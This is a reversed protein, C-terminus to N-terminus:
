SWPLRQRYDDSLLSTAGSPWYPCHPPQFDIYWQRFHSDIRPPGGLLVTVTTLTSKPSVDEDSEYRDFHEGKCTRQKMNTLLMLKIITM